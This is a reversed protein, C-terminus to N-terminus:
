IYKGLPAEDDALRKQRCKFTYMNTCHATELHLLYHSKGFFGIMM